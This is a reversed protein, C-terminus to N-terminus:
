PLDLRTVKNSPSTGTLTKEDNIMSGFKLILTVINGQLEALARESLELLGAVIDLYEFLVHSPILASTILFGAFPDLLSHFDDVYCVLKVHLM